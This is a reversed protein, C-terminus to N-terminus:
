IRLFYCAIYVTVMILLSYVGTFRSSSGTIYLLAGIDMLKASVATVISFQAGETAIPIFRFFEACMGCTFALLLKQPEHHPFFSPFASLALKSQLIPFIHITSTATWFEKSINPYGFAMSFGYFGFGFTVMFVVVTKIANPAARADDAGIKHNRLWFFLMSFFAFLALAFLEAILVTCFATLLGLIAVFLTIPFRTPMLVVTIAVFSFTLNTLISIADVRCPQFAIRVLLLLFAMWLSANLLFLSTFLLFMSFAEAALMAYTHSFCLQLIKSQPFFALDPVPPAFPQIPLCARAVYAGVLAM